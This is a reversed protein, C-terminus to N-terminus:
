EKTPCVVHKWFKGRIIAGIQQACVGAAIAIEKQTVDGQAYWRRIEAVDEETLKARVHMSGAQGARHRPPGQRTHGGELVGVVAMVSVGFKDAISQLTNQAMETEYGGPIARPAYLRRAEEAEAPTLARQRPRRVDSLLAFLTTLPINTARALAAMTEGRLYREKIHPLLHHRRLREREQPGIQTLTRVKGHQQAPDMAARADEADVNPDFHLTAQRVQLRRRQAEARRQREEEEEVSVGLPYSRYHNFCNDLLAM